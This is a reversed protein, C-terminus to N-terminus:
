YGFRDPSGFYDLKWDTVQVCSGELVSWRKISEKATVTNLIRGTNVARHM